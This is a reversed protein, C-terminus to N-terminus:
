VGEILMESNNFLGITSIFVIIDGLLMVAIQTYKRSLGKLISM